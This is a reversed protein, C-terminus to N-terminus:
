VGWPDLLSTFDDSFWGIQQCGPFSLGAKSGSQRESTAHGDAWLAGASGHHRFHVNPGRRCLPDGAGLRRRVPNAFDPSYVPYLFLQGELKVTQSPGTTAAAVDAVAVTASPAEIRSEKMGAGSFKALNNGETPEVFSVSGVGYYNYGYGASRPVRRLDAGAPWGPCLLAEPPLYDSLFGGALDIDGSRRYGTWLRCDRSRLDTESRQYAPVHCGDYDALYEGSAVGMQRLNSICRAGRARERARHLAPLLMSALVAIVAIVVLLEVLTFYKRRM